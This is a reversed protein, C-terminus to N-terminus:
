LLKFLFPTRRIVRRGSMTREDALLARVRAVAIEEVTMVVVSEESDAAAAAKSSSPITSVVEDPTAATLPALPGGGISLVPEVSLLSLVELSIDPGSGALV